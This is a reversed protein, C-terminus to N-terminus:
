AFPSNSGQKVFDLASFLSIQKQFIKQKEASYGSGQTKTVM